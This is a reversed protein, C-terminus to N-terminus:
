VYASVEAAADASIVTFTNSLIAVLVTLLLTNSLMAFSIQASSINAPWSSRRFAWRCVM